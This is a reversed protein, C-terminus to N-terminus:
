CVDVITVVAVCVCVVECTYPEDLGVTNVFKLKTVSPEPTTVTTPGPSALGDLSNPPNDILLPYQRM